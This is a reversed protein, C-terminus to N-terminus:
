GAKKYEFEPVIGVDTVKMKLHESAKFSVTKRPTITVEVGTKPNRGVRDNKQRVAFSGFASLKLEGDAVLSDIMMDLTTDLITGAHLKPMDLEKAIKDSIENRTLTQGTKPDQSM